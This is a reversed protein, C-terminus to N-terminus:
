EGTPSTVVTMRSRLEGSDQLVSIMMPILQERLFGRMENALTGNFSPQLYVDGGKIGAAVMADAIAKPDMSAQSSAMM